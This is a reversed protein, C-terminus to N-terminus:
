NDFLTNDDNEYPTYKVVKLIAYSNRRRGISDEKTTVQMVVEVKDKRGIPKGEEVQALFDKDKMDVKYKEGNEDEVRWQKDEDFHADLLQITLLVDNEDVVRSPVEWEQMARATKSDVCVKNKKDRLEAGDVGRESTPEAIAKGINRAFHKEGALRWAIESAEIHTGDNTEIKVNKMTMTSSTDDGQRVEITEAKKIGKHKIISAILKVGRITVEVIGVGAVGVFWGLGQGELTQSYQGMWQLIFQIDFSGVKTASVGCILM